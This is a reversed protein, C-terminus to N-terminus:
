NFGGKHVGRVDLQSLVVSLQVGGHCAGVLMVESHLLGWDLAPRFQLLGRRSAAEIPKEPTSNGSVEVPVSPASPKPLPPPIGKPYGHSVWVLAIQGWGM